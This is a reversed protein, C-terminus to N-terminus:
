LRASQLTLLHVRIGYMSHNVHTSIMTALTKATATNAQQHAGPKDCVTTYRSSM